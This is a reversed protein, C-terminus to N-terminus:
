CLISNLYPWSLSDFAKRIDLSLFCTPIRRTRASHALFTAQRINDGTQRSPIFGTQDRHILTGIIPNLRISLIKALIKVDINLISILRYNSWFTDDTNPKSIISISAKLSETQFSHGTLLFNFAEVMLPSLLTAFRKYCTASFGDIGPCKRPKLSKIATQIEIDTIPRDLSEQHSLFLSPLHISSLLTNLCSQDFKNSDRYIESLKRRFEHLIELPSSTYIDKTLKLRISKQNYATKCLELALFADPKNAKM